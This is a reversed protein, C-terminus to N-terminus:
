EALFEHAKITLSEITILFQIICFQSYLHESPVIHQLEGSGFMFLLKFSKQLDGLILCTDLLVVDVIGHNVHGM